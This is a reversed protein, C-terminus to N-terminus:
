ALVTGHLILFSWIHHTYKRILYSLIPAPLLILTYIASKSNLKYLLIAIFLYAPIFRMLTNIIDITLQQRKISM